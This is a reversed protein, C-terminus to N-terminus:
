DLDLLVPRRKALAFPPWPETRFCCLWFFDPKQPKKKKKLHAVRVKDGIKTLYEAKAIWADRVEIEGLNKEADDLKDALRQLEEANAKKMTAVLEADVQWKFAECLEQYYHTM